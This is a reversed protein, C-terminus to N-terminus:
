HRRRMVYAAYGVAGLALAATWFKAREDKLAQESGGLALNMRQRFCSLDADCGVFWDIAMPPAIGRSALGSWVEADTASSPLELGMTLVGRAEALASLYAGFEALAQQDIQATPDVAVRAEIEAHTPAVESSPVVTSSGPTVRTGPPPAPVYVVSVARTTPDVTRACAAYLSCSDKSLLLERKCWATPTKTVPPLPRWAAFSQQFTQMCGAPDGGNFLRTVVETKVQDGLTTVPSQGRTLLKQDYVLSTVLFTAFNVATNLDWIAAISQNRGVFQADSPTDSSFRITHVYDGKSSLLAKVTEVGVRQLEALGPGGWLYDFPAPIVSPAFASLFDDGVSRYTM